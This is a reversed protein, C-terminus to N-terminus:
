RFRQGLKGVSDYKVTEFRYKWVGRVNLLAARAVYANGVGDVALAGFKSSIGEDTRVWLENGDPDYKVTVVVREFRSSESVGAVYVNGAGDVALAKAQHEVNYLELRPSGFLRLKAADFDFEAVWLRNGESDYKVTAYGRARPCSRCGGTIFVNGERDVALANARNPLSVRENYRAVWAEEVQASVPEFLTSFTLLSFTIFGTPTTLTRM